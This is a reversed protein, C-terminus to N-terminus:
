TLSWPFLATRKMEVSPTTDVATPQPAALKTSLTTPV